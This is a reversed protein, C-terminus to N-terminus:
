YPGGFYGVEITLTDAAYGDYADDDIASVTPIMQLLLLLSSLLLPIIRKKQREISKMVHGEKTETLPVAYKEFNSRNQRNQSSRRLIRKKWTSKIVWIILFNM